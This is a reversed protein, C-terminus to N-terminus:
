LLDTLDLGPCRRGLFRALAEDSQYRIRFEGEPLYEFIERNELVCEGGLADKFVSQRSPKSEPQTGIAFGSDLLLGRQIRIEVGGANDRRIEPAVEIDAGSLSLISVDESGFTMVEGSPLRVELTNEATSRYVPAGRRPFLYYDRAGTFLADPGDGYSNFVMLLGDHNFLYSRYVLDKYSALSDVSLMCSGRQPNAYSQVRLLNLFLRSDECQVPFEPPAESAQTLGGSLSVWIMAAATVTWNLNRGLSKSLNM